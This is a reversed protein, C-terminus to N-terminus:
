SEFRVTAGEAKPRFEACWWSVAVQPFMAGPVMAPGQLTKYSVSVIQPPFRHCQGQKEKGVEAVGEAEVPTFCICGGCRPIIKQAIKDSM